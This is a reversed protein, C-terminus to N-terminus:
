AARRAKAKIESFLNIIEGNFAPLDKPSRSSVWNRDRVVESDEWRGRANM